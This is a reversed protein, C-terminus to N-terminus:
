LHTHKSFVTNQFVSFVTNQFYQLNLLLSYKMRTIAASFGCGNLEFSYICIM